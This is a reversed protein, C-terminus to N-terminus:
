AEMWLGAVGRALGLRLIRLVEEGSADRKLGQRWDWGRKVEEVSKVLASSGTGSSTQSDLMSSGVLSFSSGSTMSSMTKLLQRPSPPTTQSHYASLTSRFCEECQAYIRPTVTQLDEIAKLLTLSQPMTLPYTTPEPPPDTPNFASLTHPSTRNVFIIAEGLLALLGDVQVVAGRTEDFLGGHINDAASNIVAILATAALTKRAIPRITPTQGDKLNAEEDRLDYFRRLTAYGTLYLHLMAAAEADISAIQELSEKPTFIL